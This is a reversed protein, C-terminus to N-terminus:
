EAHSSQTRTDLQFDRYGSDINERKVMGHMGGLYAAESEKGKARAPSGLPLAVEPGPGLGPWPIGVIASSLVLRASDSIGCRRQRPIELKAKALSGAAWRFRWRGNDHSRCPLPPPKNQPSPCPNTALRRRARERYTASAQRQGPSVSALAM